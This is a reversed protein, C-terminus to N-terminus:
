RYDQITHQETVVRVFVFGDFLINVYQLNLVVHNHELLHSKHFSTTINFTCTRFSHLGQKIQIKFGLWSVMYNFCFVIVFIPNDINITRRKMLFDYNRSKTIMLSPFWIAFSIRALGESMQTVAM